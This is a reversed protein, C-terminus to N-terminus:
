YNVIPMHILMASLEGDHNGEPQGRTFEYHNSEPLKFLKSHLNVMFVFFIPLIM